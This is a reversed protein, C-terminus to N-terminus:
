LPNSSRLRYHICIRRFSMIILSSYNFILYIILMVLGILFFPWVYIRSQSKVTTSTIDYTVPTKFSIVEFSASGLVINEPKSSNVKTVSQIVESEVEEEVFENEAGPTPITIQRSNNSALSISSSKKTNVYSFKNAIADKNTFLTIEDGTNNLSIKLNEILYYGGPQITLDPLFHITSGYSYGDSGRDKLYWQKINVSKEGYNYLEIWESEGKSTDPYPCLENIRITTPEITNPPNTQPSPNPYPYSSPKPLPFSIPFSLPYSSPYSAVYSVPYSIPNNVWCSFDYNSNQLGITNATKHIDLTSCLPGGREFSKGEVAQPYNLLDIIAANEDILKIAADSNFMNLKGSGVVVKNVGTFLTASEVVLLYSKPEITINSLLTKRETGSQSKTVISWGNLDIIDNSTNYLEVWEKGSDAGVGDPLFENIFVSPTSSAFLRTIGALNLCIFLFLIFKTLSKM